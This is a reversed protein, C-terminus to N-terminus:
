IRPLKIENLCYGKERLQELAKINEKLINERGSKSRCTPCLLGTGADEGCYACYRVIGNRAKIMPEIKIEKNM